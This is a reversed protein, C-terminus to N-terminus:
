VLRIIANGLATLGKESQQSVSILNDSDKIKARKWTVPTTDKTSKVQWGICKESNIVDVFDYTNLVTGNRVHALVNEMFSGPITEQAFPLKIYGRLINSITELESKNSFAKNM